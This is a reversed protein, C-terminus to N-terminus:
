GVAGEDLQVLLPFGFRDLQVHEGTLVKVPLGTSIEFHGALPIERWECTQNRGATAQEECHGFFADSICAACPQEAIGVADRNDCRWLTSNDIRLTRFFFTLHILPLDRWNRNKCM